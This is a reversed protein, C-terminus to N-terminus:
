FVDDYWLAGAPGIVIRAQGFTIAIVGIEREGVRRKLYYGHEQGPDCFKVTEEM